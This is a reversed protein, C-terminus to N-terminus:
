ESGQEGELRKRGQRRERQEGLEIKGDEVSATWGTPRSASTSWITAIRIQNVERKPVESSPFSWPHGEDQLYLCIRCITTWSRSLIVGEGM